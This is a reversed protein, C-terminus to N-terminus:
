IINIGIIYVEDNSLLNQFETHKIANEMTKQADKAYISFAAAIGLSGDIVKKAAIDGSFRRVEKLEKIHKQRRPDLFDIIQKEANDFPSKNSNYKAEGFVILTNPSITHFDFGPNGSVKEKFLEPLPIASHSLCEVLARQANYSVLYEGFEKEIKTGVKNLISDVIKNITPTACALLSAQDIADFKLIWSTDIVIKIIDSAEQKANAAEVEVLISYVHNHKKYGFSCTDVIKCEIIKM